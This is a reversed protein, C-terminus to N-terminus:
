FVYLQTKFFEIKKGRYEVSMSEPLSDFYTREAGKRNYSKIHRQDIWTIKDSIEDVSMARFDDDIYIFSEILYRKKLINM